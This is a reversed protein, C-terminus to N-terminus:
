IDYGYEKMLEECYHRVTRAEEAPWDKWTPVIGRTQQNLKMGLINEVKKPEPTDSDSIFSLVNRVTDGANNFIDESRVFLSREEPLTELVKNIHSNTKEWLWACKELQSNEDWGESASDEPRPHIRAFDWPHEAYYKRRMGSRVFDFPHRVLHIFKAKPYYEALLDCLLAMRNNTEFYVKESRVSQRIWEDRNAGLLQRWFESPAASCLRMFYLYSSEILIPDPEHHSSVDSLLEALASM